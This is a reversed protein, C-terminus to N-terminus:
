ATPSAALAARRAKALPAVKAGVKPPLASVGGPRWTAVLRDVAEPTQCADLARTYPSLDEEAPAEPAKTKGGKRAKTPVGEEDDTDVMDTDPLALGKILADKWAYTSAKGAAKDDKAVGHGCGVFDVFSGDPAVIRVLAKVMCMTGREADINTTDQGAVYVLLDLEDAAERLKAMLTGASKIAYQVGAKKEAKLVGVAKRLRIVLATIQPPEPSQSVGGWANKFQHLRLSPAAPAAPTETVSAEM